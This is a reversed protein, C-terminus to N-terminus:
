DHHEEKLIETLLKYEEDNEVGMLEMWYTISVGEAAICSIDCEKIARVLAQYKEESM